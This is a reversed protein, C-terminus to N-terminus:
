YNFMYLRFNPRMPVILFGFIQKINELLLIEKFYKTNHKIFQSFMETKQKLMRVILFSIITVYPNCISETVDCM